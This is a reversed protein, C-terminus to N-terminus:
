RRDEPLDSPRQWGEPPDARQLLQALFGLESVREEAATSGQNLRLSLARELERLAEVPLADLMALLAAWTCAAGAAENAQGELGACPRWFTHGAESANAHPTGAPSIATAAPRAIQKRSGDRWRAYATTTFPEGVDVYAERVAALIQEDTVRKSRKL